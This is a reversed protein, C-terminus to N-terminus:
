FKHLIRNFEDDFRKESKLYVVFEEPSKSNVINLMLSISKEVNLELTKDWYVSTSKHSNAEVIQLEFPHMFGVNELIFNLAKNRLHVNYDKRINKKITDSYIVIHRDEIPSDLVEENFASM